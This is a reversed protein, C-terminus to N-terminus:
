IQKQKLFRPIIINHFRLVNKLEKFVNRTHVMESCTVKVSKQHPPVLFKIKSLLKIKEIKSKISCVTEYLAYFYHM